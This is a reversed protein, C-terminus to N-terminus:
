LGELSGVRGGGLAGCFGWGVCLFSLGEELCEEGEGVEEVAGDGAGEM